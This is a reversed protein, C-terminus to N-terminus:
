VVPRPSTGMKSIVVNSDQCWGTTSDTKMNSGCYCQGSWEDSYPDYNILRHGPTEGTSYDRLEGSYTTYGIIKGSAKCIINDNRSLKSTESDCVCGHKLSLAHRQGDLDIAARERDRM